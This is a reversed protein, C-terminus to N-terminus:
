RKAPDASVASPGSASTSGSGMAMAQPRPAAAAPAPAKAADARQIDVSGKFYAGDEIVIRQTKINGVLKAERRIDIKDGAEVDGKISGQVMIERAKVGANVKGNPGVVVRHEIAEVSGEVEGDIVLDERSYIQGKIVVSKGITASGTARYTDTSHHVPEPARNPLTSMPIGERSLESPSPPQRPILPEDEKKGRNWLNAM